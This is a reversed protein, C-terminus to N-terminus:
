VNVSGLARIKNKLEQLRRGAAAADEVPPVIEAAQARTMEYEELLKTEVENARAQAAEQKEELKAVERGALEREESKERSRQRLATQSAEIQTRQATLEGIRAEGSKAQERFQAAGELLGKIEEDIRSSSEELMTIQAQLGDRYGQADHRRSDLDRLAIEISEIESSLTAVALKCEAIQESLAERQEALERRGGALAKIEANVAEQKETLAASREAAAAIAERCVAARSQLTATEKERDEAAAKASQAQESLRRLEAEMRVLDDKATGLEAQTGLLQAKAAAAEQEAARFASEADKSAQQQANSKETLRDIEARRSLLGANKVSSGGTMSGGANIVQGDLSVIRFRYQHRRAIRVASDLDEVIATRGLLDRAVGEYTRDCQVLSSAIGLFGDEDELGKEDLERGKITDLPLFTARGGKTDKLYRIGRKGDNETDCVIHQAAQGLATEIALAYVAEANFLAGSRSDVGLAVPHNLEVKECLTFAQSLLMPPLNDMCQYGSDELHKLVSTKGAGSLGTVILFRM